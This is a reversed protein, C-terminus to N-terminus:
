GIYDYGQEKIIELILNLEFGKRRLKAIEKQRQTYSMSSHFDRDIIEKLLTRYHESDVSQISEKILPESIGKSRLAISIKVFGWHNQHLKGRIFTRAFRRDDLYGEETLAKLYHHQEDKPVGLRNMKQQVDFTCREQYACYRTLKQYIDEEKHKFSNETM